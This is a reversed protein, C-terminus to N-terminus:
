PPNYCANLQGGIFWAANGQHLDSETVTHWPKSWTLFQTAQTSWFEDPQKISAQYMRAYDESSILAHEAVNAPVPYIKHESM